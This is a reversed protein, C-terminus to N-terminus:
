REAVRDADLIAGFGVIPTRIDALWFFIRGPASTWDGM